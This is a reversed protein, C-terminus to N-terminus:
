KQRSFSFWSIRHRVGDQDTQSLASFGTEHFLTALLDEPSMPPISTLLPKFSAHGTESVTIEYRIQRDGDRSLALLVCSKAQAQPGEAPTPQIQFSKMGLQFAGGNVKLSSESADPPGAQADITLNQPLPGDIFDALNAGEAHLRGSGDAGVALRVTEDLASLDFILRDNALGLETAIRIPM